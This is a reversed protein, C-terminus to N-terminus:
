GHYRESIYFKSLNDKGITAIYFEITTIYFRSLFSLFFSLFLYFQLIPFSLFGLGAEKRWKKSIANAFGRVCACVSFGLLTSLPFIIM